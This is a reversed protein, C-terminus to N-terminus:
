LAHLYSATFTRLNPSSETATESLQVTGLLLLRQSPILAPALFKPILIQMPQDTEAMANTTVVSWLDGSDDVAQTEVIIALGYEEANVNTEHWHRAGQSVIQQVDAQRKVTRGIPQMQDRVTRLVPNGKPLAAIVQALGTLDSYVAQALPRLDAAETRLAQSWDDLDSECQRILAFVNQEAQREGADLDLNNLQSDLESAQEMELENATPPNMAPEADADPTAATTAATSELALPEQGQDSSAVELLVDDFRRFGSSGREPAPVRSIQSDPPDYPRFKDPVIWPLYRGVWPGAGGVDTGILHWVLLLGIPIAAVGGLVVQLVSWLPSRSKRKNREFQEHTIPQYNSWDAQKKLAASTSDTSAPEEAVLELDPGSDVDTDTLQSPSETPPTVTPAVEPAEYPALDLVEWVGFQQALMEEIVFEGGCHPCRIRATIPVGEPLLTTKTCAPCPLLQIV